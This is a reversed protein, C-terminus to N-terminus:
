DGRLVQPRRITVDYDWAVVPGTPWDGTATVVEVGDETVLATDGCAAGDVVPSFACAVPSEVPTSSGPRVTWEAREYGTAGGVPGARWGDPAGLHEFTAAIGDHVSGVVGDFRAVGQVAGLASTEVQTAKRHAEALEPRDAFAVMRTVGAHLGDREGVARVRLMEGVDADTPTPSRYAARDAGAVHLVRPTIGRDVLATHLGFAVDRETDDPAAARCVGEVAAGLDPGFARYADADVGTLPGRLRSPAVYEVGPVDADAAAPTPSRDAVADVLSSEHWVVTEVTVETPLEEDVLRDAVADSALVHFDGDYRLAADGVPATPDDTNSGGTAWAVSGPTLLWVAALDREDCVTDLREAREALRADM